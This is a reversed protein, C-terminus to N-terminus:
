TLKIMREIFSFKYLIYLNLGVNWKNANLGYGPIIHNKAQNFPESNYLGGMQFACGGYLAVKELLRSEAAIIVQFWSATLSKSIVQTDAKTPLTNNMFHANNYHFGAYLDNTNNYHSVYGIGFGGYFGETRYTNKNSELRPPYLSVYGLNGVLKINGKWLIGVTGTWEYPLDADKKTLKKLGAWMNKALSIQEIGISIEQILPIYPTMKVLQKTVLADLATSLDTHAPPLAPLPQPKTLLLPRDTPPQAPPQDPITNSALTSTPQKPLLPRDNVPQESSPAIYKPSTAANSLVQFGTLLGSCLTIGLVLQNSLVFYTRPRNNM